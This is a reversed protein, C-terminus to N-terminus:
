PRFPIVTNQCISEPSHVTLIPRSHGHTTKLPTVVFIQKIVSWIKDILAEAIKYFAKDTQQDMPGDTIILDLIM